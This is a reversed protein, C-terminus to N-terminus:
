RGGPKACALEVRRNRARGALTDNTEVPRREGFGAISLGGASAGYEGVLAAKVAAARRQSLDDNYADSGISDTHGEIVLARAPAAKVAAAIEQLARTSEPKLTAKDFDFYIGRLEVRCDRALADAVSVELAPLDIRVIERVFDPKFPFGGDRPGYAIRLSLPYTPHDLIMMEFPRRAAGAAMYGTAHIADLVVRKGNLLVPFKVPSGAARRLTGSVVDRGVYTRFAYPTEGTLRLARTTALSPGLATTGSVSPPDATHFGHVQVPASELDAASVVRTVTGRRQGGAADVGDFFTTHTIRDATVASISVVMEYDGHIIDRSTASPPTYDQVALVFTVGPTIPIDTAKAAAPQAGAPTALAALAAVITAVRMAATM